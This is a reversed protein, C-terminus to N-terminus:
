SEFNYEIFYVQPLATIINPRLVELSIILTLQQGNGIDSCHWSTHLVAYKAFKCSIYNGMGGKEKM